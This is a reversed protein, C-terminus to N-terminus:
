NYIHHKLPSFFTKIYIRFPSIVIFFSFLAVAASMLIDTPIYTNKNLIKKSILIVAMNVAFNILLMEDAYINVNM